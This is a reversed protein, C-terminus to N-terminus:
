GTQHIPDVAEAPLAYGLTDFILTELDFDPDPEPLEGNVSARFHDFTRASALFPAGDEPVHVQAHVQRAVDVHAEIGDGSPNTHAHLVVIAPLRRIKNMLQRHRAHADSWLNEGIPITANPDPTVLYEPKDKERRVNKEVGHLKRRADLSNLARAEAWRKCMHWTAGITSIVVLPVQGPYPDQSALEAGLADVQNEVGTGDPDRWYGSHQVIRFDSNPATAYVDAHNEGIDVWYTDRIRDSGSLTASLWEGAVAPSSVVLIRPPPMLYTAARDRLRPAAQEQGPEATTM